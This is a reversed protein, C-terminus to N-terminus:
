HSDNRTETTEVPKSFKGIIVCERRAFDPILFKLPRANQRVMLPRKRISAELLKSLM